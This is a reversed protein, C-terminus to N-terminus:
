RFQRVSIVKFRQNTLEEKVENESNSRLVGKIVIRHYKEELLSFTHFYTKSNTRHRM